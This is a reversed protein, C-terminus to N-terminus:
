GAGGGGIVERTGDAREVVLDDCGDGGRQVMLGVADAITTTATAEVEGHEPWREFVFVEGSHVRLVAPTRTGDCDWDGLEVEDGPQGVEYRRGGVTVVASTRATTTTTTTTTITTTTTTTPPTSPASAPTIAVVGAALAAIAAVLATSRRPWRHVPPGPAPVAGAILGALRRASPRRTPPDARALDAVHLLSRRAWGSCRVGVMGAILAGVAAVDDATTADSVSPDAFGCLVPRGEAGVLVHGPEVAGHVIGLEHLDALTAAVAAAVTAVQVADLPGLLELPRGGHALVLEWRDASGTTSIVEVVGPHAAELLREGKARLAAAAAGTARRVVTPAGAAVGVETAVRAADEM